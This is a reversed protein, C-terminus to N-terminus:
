LPWRATPPHLPPSMWSLRTADFISEEEHEPPPAGFDSVPWPGSPAERKGQWVVTYQQQLYQRM